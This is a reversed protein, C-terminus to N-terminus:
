IFASPLSLAGSAALGCGTGPRTIAKGLLGASFVKKWADAHSQRSMVGTQKGLTSNGPGLADMGRLSHFRECSTSTGNRAHLYFSSEHAWVCEWPKRTGATQRAAVWCRAPSVEM